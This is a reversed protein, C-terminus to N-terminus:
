FKYTLAVRVTQFALGSFNAMITSPPASGLQREIVVEDVRNAGNFSIYLYEARLTWNNPLLYELGGGATWGTATLNNAGAYCVSSPNCIGNLSSLGLFEATNTYSASQDIRGYAFGGTGYIMLDSTPLFGLRGRVTGFWQLTEDTVSTFPIVGQSSLNTSTGRGEISAFDFDTEVGILWNRNLQWNYGLQFGGFAGAVHFSTPAAPGAARALTQPPDDTSFMVAQAQGGSWGGNIGITLGTWTSPAAIPTVPAKYAPAPLDAGLAPSAMALAAVAFSFRTMVSWGRAAIASNPDAVTAAVIRYM